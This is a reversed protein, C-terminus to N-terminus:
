SQALPETGNTSGGELLANVAANLLKQMSTRENLALLKLKYHEEESLKLQICVKQAAM